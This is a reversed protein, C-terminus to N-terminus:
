TGRDVADFVELAHQFPGSTIGQDIERPHDFSFAICLLLGLLVAIASSILAHGITSGLRLSGTLAVLVVGGFILGVWLLGPIRPKTDIMRQTRDSALVALQGLFEANIASSAVGSSQSGVIRYMQTIAARASDRASDGAQKYSESGAVATGYQRLLQQLQPREPEPMAVTQRYMTTLASAENAVIVQTASFQQWTVVVTFGLLAGYVLGVIAIFPSMTPNHLEDVSSLLRTGLLVCGVAIVIAVVVVSSVLLWLPPGYGTM